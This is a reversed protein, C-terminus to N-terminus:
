DDRARADGKITILPRLTHLVDVLDRQREIVTAIDKYVGPAEDLYSPSAKSYTQTLSQAFAAPTIADRAAKRSMMRGAGHSCSELSDPNGRGRVISSPTGMSGPIIGIEGTRASTAGKRHVM